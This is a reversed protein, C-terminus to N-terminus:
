KKKSSTKIIGFLFLTFLSIITIVGAKDALSKLEFALYILFIYIIAVLIYILFIFKNTKKILENEIPEDIDVDKFEEIENIEKDFVLNNEVLLNQVYDSNDTKVFVILSNHYKPFKATGSVYEEFYSVYSINYKKLLNIYNNIQELEVIEKSNVRSSTIAKWSEDPKTTVLNLHIKDDYKKELLENVFDESTQIKLENLAIKYAEDTYEDKKNKVIDELIELKLNKFKNKLEEEYNM